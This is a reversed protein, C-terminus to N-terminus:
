NNIIRKAKFSPGSPYGKRLMFYKVRRQGSRNKNPQVKEAIIVITKHNPRDQFPEHENHFYIMARLSM